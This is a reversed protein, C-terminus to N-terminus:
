DITAQMMVSNEQFQMFFGLLPQNESPATLMTTQFAVLIYDSTGKVVWSVRGYFKM